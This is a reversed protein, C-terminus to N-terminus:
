QNLMPFNEDFDISVFEESPESVVDPIEEHVVPEPVKIHHHQARTGRREKEKRQHIFPGPQRMERIPDDHFNPMEGFGGAQQIDNGM